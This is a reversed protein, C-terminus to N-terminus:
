GGFGYIAHPGKGELQHLEKVLKRVHVQNNRWNADDIQQELLQIKDAKKMRPPGAPRARMTRAARMTRTPVARMTRTPVARMTRTPM